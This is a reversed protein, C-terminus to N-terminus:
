ENPENESDDTPDIQKPDNNYRITDQYAAMTVRMQDLKDLKGDGSNLFEIFKEGFTDIGWLVSANLYMDRVIDYQGLEWAKTLMGPDVYQRLHPAIVPPNIRAGHGKRISEARTAMYKKIDEEVLAALDSVRNFTDEGSITPDEGVEVTKLYMSKVNKSSYVSEVSEVPIDDEISDLLTKEDYSVIDYEMLDRSDHDGCDQCIKNQNDDEYVTNYNDLRDGCISCHKSQNGGSAEGALRDHATMAQRLTRNRYSMNRLESKMGAGAGSRVSGTIDRMNGGSAATRGGAVVAGVTALGATRGVTGVTGVTTKKVKAGLRDSTGMFSANAFRVSAVGNSIKSRNKILIASMITMMIIGTWWGVTEMYEIAMATFILSLVLMFGMAMRKIMTNVVLEAWSKCIEWGKNAWCGLLLMIPSFAMLIALGIAYISCLFAFVLPALVGIFTVFISTFATGVRTSSSNGTWSDWNDLPRSAKDVVIIEQETPTVQGGGVGITTPEKKEAYNSIADAVRWWDNNLGATYLGIKGDLGVPAHANTQTSLQFIAWNHIEDSDGLPVPASGVMSQNSSSNDLAAAGAPAWSPINGAAWTENWEAGFQAEAWPRLLFQQWMSCGINSRMNKITGDLFDLQKKADTTNTVKSKTSAPTPMGINTSCLGKGGAITENMTSVVIAQGVVSINNPLKIWFLPNASIIFAAFFLGLSRLLGTMATRYQRKVIGQYFIWGGTMVFVLAVLPVFLGEFLQGFLGGTTDSGGIMSDIGLTGTVDGFAFNIFGLTIAVMVKSVNFTWNAATNLIALWADGVASRMHQNTRIDNSSERAVWNSTPPLREEYFMGAKSDTPEKGSDCADVKWYAWEGQYGTFYLGALGFRDYPNVKPGGNYTVESEDATEAPDSLGGTDGPSYLERGLIVENVESYDDGGLSIIWNLWFDDVEQAALGYSSKSEFAFHYDDTIFFQYGEKVKGGILDCIVWETIGGAEAKNNIAEHSTFLGGVSIIFALVGAFVVRSLRKKSPGISSHLPSDIYSAKSM